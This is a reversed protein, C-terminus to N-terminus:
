RKDASALSIVKVKDFGATILAAAGENVSAGSTIMDDLLIVSGGLVREECIFKGKVNEFRSKRDLTKQRESKGVRKLKDFLRLSSNNCVYEGLLRAQDFGYSFIGEKSRPLFALYECDFFCSRTGIMDLLIDGALRVANDWGRRKLCYVLSRVEPEEFSFASMAFDFHMTKRYLELPLYKRELKTKCDPCVADKCPERCIPCAPVFLLEGLKKFSLM